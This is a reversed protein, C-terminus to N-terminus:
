LELPILLIYTASNDKEEKKQQRKEYQIDEQPIDHDNVLKDHLINWAHNAKSEATSLSSSKARIILLNNSDDYEAVTKNGQYRKIDLRAMVRNSIRYLDHKFEEVKKDQIEKIERKDFFDWLLNIQKAGQELRGNQIDIQIDAIVEKLQEELKESAFKVKLSDQEKEPLHQVEQKIYTQLDQAQASQSLGSLATLSITGMVAAKALRTAIGKQFWGNEVDNMLAKIKDNINM